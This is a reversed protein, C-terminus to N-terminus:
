CLAKNSIFFMIFLIKIISQGVVNTADYRGGLGVELIVVDVQTYVDIFM